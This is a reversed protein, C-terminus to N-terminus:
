TQEISDSSNRAAALDLFKEMGFRIHLTTGENGFIVQQLCDGIKAKRAIVIPEIPRDITV